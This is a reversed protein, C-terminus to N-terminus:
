QQDDFVTVARTRLREGAGGRQADGVGVEHEFALQWALGNARPQHGTAAGVVVQHRRPDGVLLKGGKGVQLGLAHPFGCGAARQRHEAQAAPLVGGDRDIFDIRAALELVIGLVVQRPRSEIGRDAHASLRVRDHAVRIGSRGKPDIGTELVGAAARVRRAVFAVARGIDDESAPERHLIQRQALLEPERETRVHQLGPDFGM